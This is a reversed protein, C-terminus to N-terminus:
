SMDVLQRLLARLNQRQKANTVRGYEAQLATKVRELIPKSEPAPAFTMLAKAAAMREAFSRAQGMVPDTVASAMVEM